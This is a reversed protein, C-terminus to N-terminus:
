EALIAVEEGSALGAAISFTDVDIGDVEIRRAQWGGNRRVLAWHEGDTERVCARPIVIAEVPKRAQILATGELLRGDGDVHEFEIVVDYVRVGTEKREERRAFRGTVSLDESTMGIASVMGAAPKGPQSHLAMVARQGVALVAAQEETAQAVFASAAPDIIAVISATWMNDLGPRAKGGLYIAPWLVLGSVPARRKGEAIMDLWKDRLVEGLKVRERAGQLDAQRKEKAVAESQRAAQARERALAVEARAALLEPEGPGLKLARLDAEGKSLQAAALSCKTEAERLTVTPVDEGDALRQMRALAKEAAELRLRHRDREIEALLVKEPLPGSELAQLRAQAKRLALEARRVEHEGNIQALRFEEKLRESLTRNRRVDQNWQRVRNEMNDNYVIGVLEGPRVATGEPALWELETWYRYHSVVEHRRTSRVRGPLTLTPAFQRREAFVSLGSPLLRVPCQVDDGGAALAHSFGLGAALCLTTLWLGVAWSHQHTRVM